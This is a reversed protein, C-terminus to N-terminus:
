GPLLQGHDSDLVSGLSEVFSNIHTYTHKVNSTVIIVKGDFTFTDNLKKGRVLQRPQYALRSGSKSLDQNIHIGSM